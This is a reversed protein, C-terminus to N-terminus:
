VRELYQGPRLRLLALQDDSGLLLLVGDDFLPLPADRQAVLIRLADRPTKRHKRGADRADSYREMGYYVASGYQGLAVLRYDRLANASLTCGHEAMKKLYVHLDSCKVSKFDPKDTDTCAAYLVHCATRYHTPPRYGFM